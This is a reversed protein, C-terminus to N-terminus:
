RTPNLSRASLWERLKTWRRKSGHTRVAIALAKRQGVIVVLRKGRTVATYVLNRALMTYHQMALTIVVAPYESGQSKHITTAYAPVLADLEGFPYEVERGDFDAILVSETQDIRLVRGLDGNFVERDYDNETQMVKDGPAFASGFREIKEAMNPNLAKQLDGNLARAGLAGRQMPCLVQVDRVPDLGFRKPIRDRVIEVVKAAGEEPENAEVFFFDSNEGRRPWEPMEGRNIRHANVVIRSEAAQRFVETLRAVAIAGSAIIDGLVQGPGVSPLQDVDGVLLLAAGPPVAKMVAFMLSTDVMSTEDIVLLDCELPQEADRRFGGTKPDTELLRHITKAEIGTQETMRKAARGTPAALLLRTGKAALIRLITDLLTTKGVGPGGTVVAVKSRLVMEVAACQSAALTKGTKKEVWPVAKDIDIRPWPPSGKSLAQLRDAIGREALYLGRLFVCPRDDITDAVVEGGALEDTLATRVVGDDVELLTIALKILDEIPLACHGEDTAEQLAFSIGARVRQPAERTMGLKMAIADATRFGIGRIDRALRYPNETMVQIADHGYTKFIRVARSTGVGHSHLFVMIDRVAKQEAWGAAIKRARFEGIGPVERLKEPAAEIIEFTGEGFAGVIRKALVPGIGRVMGSGLYKEIGEATTPPTTKLFDAKFQLGHTRDTIWVGVAHIFEGASISAVHGVVPVLDGRGRAKVKLVAFGNDENHFTVREVSGVLTDRPPTADFSPKL